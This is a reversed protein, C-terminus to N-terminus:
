GAGDNGTERKGNGSGGNSEERSGRLIELLADARVPKVIHHTFGGLSTRRRDEQQGYGTLAVLTMKESGAQEQLRRAVEYGDMGPLGIDLIVVDPRFERAAELADPGSYAVRVGHGNMELLKALGDASDVSDDIVLIRLSPGDLSSLRAEPLSPAAARLLAPLWVVLEAGRGRGESFAQVRGGHLEVLSRVLTLGIGLGGERRDLSPDEQVFVDFVYPLLEPDIGRGSDRVRIVAEEGERAATLFIRSAEPSFKSSNNLLNAVVQALRNLDANVWLADLPLATSVEQRRAQLFPRTIDLALTVAAALEIPQARLTVKGQNIRSVDLLDDVIRTLHTTQRQIVERSWELTPETLDRSNLIEVANTIAGLPNRLEHALMALFEDKRRAAQRLEAEAAKRETIDRTFCRTHVFEGNVFKGNSYISVIRTSGDKCRLRAEHNRLTENRVLRELIEDVVHADLHFESIHHGVYEERSYGLMGLEARNAWLIRGDGGVWHLAVAANEVFDELEQTRTILESEMAKREGVDRLVSLHRGPAIEAVAAFEVTRVQGDPRVLRFEGRVHKQRRFEAWGDQLDYGPECFDAIKRGLIAERPIGLLEAAAPNADIYRGDDDTVLIADLAGAFIARLESPTLDSALADPVAIDSRGVPMLFPYNPEM